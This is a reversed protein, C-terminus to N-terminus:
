RIIAFPAKPEKRLFCKGVAYHIDALEFNLIHGRVIALYYKSTLRKEFLKGARGAATKNKAICLIGSTSYDLRHM